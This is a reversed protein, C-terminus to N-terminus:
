WSATWKTEEKEGGNQVERGHGHAAPGAFPNYRRFPHVRIELASVFAKEQVVASVYPIPPHCSKKM